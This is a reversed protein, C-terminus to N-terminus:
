NRLMIIVAIREILAVLRAVEPDETGDLIIQERTM